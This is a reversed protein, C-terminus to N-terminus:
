DTLKDETKEGICNITGKVRQQINKNTIIKKIPREAINGLGFTTARIVLNRKADPNKTKFDVGTDAVDSIVGLTPGVWSSSGFTVFMGINNIGASLGKIMGLTGDYEYDKNGGEAGGEGKGYNSMSGKMNSIGYDLVSMFRFFRNQNSSLDNSKEDTFNKIGVGTVEKTVEKNDANTTTITEKFTYGVTWSGNEQKHLSSGPKSKAFDQAKIKSDSNTINRWFGAGKVWDGLPDNLLVPNNDM